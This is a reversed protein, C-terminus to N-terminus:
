KGGQINTASKPVAPPRYRETGIKVGDTRHWDLVVGPATPIKRTLSNGCEPCVAPGVTSM